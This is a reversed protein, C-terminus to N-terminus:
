DGENEIVPLYHRSADDCEGAILPLPECPPIQSFCGIRMHGDKPYISYVGSTCEWDLHQGPELIVVESQAGLMLANGFVATLLALVLVVVLLLGIISYQARVRKQM